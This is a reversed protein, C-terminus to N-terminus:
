FINEIFFQNTIKVSIFGSWIYEEDDEDNFYEEASEFGGAAEM